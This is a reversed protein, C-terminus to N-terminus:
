AVPMPLPRPTASSAPATSTSTPSFSPCPAAGPSKEPTPWTPTPATPTATKRDPRLRGPHVTLNWDDEDLDILPETLGPLAPERCLASLCGSDAPRDFLGLLRLVALQREGREGGTSLWAEYAAMAKFAHGGKVESDAKELQM